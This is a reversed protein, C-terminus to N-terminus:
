YTRLQQKGCTQWYGDSNRTVLLVAQHNLWVTKVKAGLVVPNTSAIEDGDITRITDIRPHHLLDKATLTHGEDGVKIWGKFRGDNGSLRLGIGALAGIVGQGTGGHESLHIGQKDALDYASQKTLVEQKARQGFEIMDKVSLLADTEAVALGPDSGEARETKLYNAAFEIVDKLRKPDNLTASFCMSSNHSTYPIDDHILLQHRTIGSCDGWGYTHIKEAINEALEGTGRSEQNDTDDICVLIKM